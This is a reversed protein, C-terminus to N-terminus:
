FHFEEKAMLLLGLFTKDIELSVKLKLFGPFNFDLSLDSLILSIEHWRNFLHPEEFFRKKSLKSLHQHSRLKNQEFEIKVEFKHLPADLLKTLLYIKKVTPWVQSM